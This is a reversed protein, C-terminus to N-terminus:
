PRARCWCCSRSRSRPPSRPRSRARCSRRCRWAGMGPAARDRPGRDRAHLRVRLRTPTRGGPHGPLHPRLQDPGARAVDLVPRRETPERRHRSRDEPFVYAFVFTTLLPQMITRLLFPVSSSACSAYTARWCRSSRRSVRASRRAHHHLDRSIAPATVRAPGNGTLSIFVTELTAETIGVDTISFGGRDAHTILEPLSPGGRGVDVYVTDDVIRGGGVKDLAELHAVLSTSTARRGADAGRHRRRRDGELSEAHRARAAPRPGHDRRPRLASRGRGHLADDSPDDSGRDHLERM